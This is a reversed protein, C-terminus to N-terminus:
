ENATPDSTRNGESVDTTVVDNEQNLDARFGDDIRDGGISDDSLSKGSQTTV